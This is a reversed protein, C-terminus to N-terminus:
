LSSIRNWRELIQIKMQLALLQFLLNGQVDLIIPTPRMTFTLNKSTQSQVASIPCEILSMNTSPISTQRNSFRTNPSTRFNVPVSHNTIRRAPLFTQQNGRSRHNMYLRSHAPTINQRRQDNWGQRNTGGLNRTKNPPFCTNACSNLKPNTPIEKAKSSTVEPESSMFNFKKVKPEPKCYSPEANPPLSKHKTFMAKSVILNATISKTPLTKSLPPKTSNTTKSERIMVKVVMTEDSPLMESPVTEPSEIELLETTSVEKEAAETGSSELEVLKTEPSVMELTISEPLITISPLGSSPETDLSAVESVTEMSMVESIMAEETFVAELVSKPTMSHPTMSIPAMSHPTLSVIALPCTAEYEVAMSNPTLSRPTWSLLPFLMSFYISHPDKLSLAFLLCCFGDLLFCNRIRYQNTIALSILSQTDISLVIAMEPEKWDAVM